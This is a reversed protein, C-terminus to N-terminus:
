HVLGVATERPEIQRGDSKSIPGVGMIEVAIEDIEVGSCEGVNLFEEAGVVRGIVGYQEHKAIEIGGFCKFKRFAVEFVNGHLRLRRTSVDGFRRLGFLATAFNGFIEAGKRSEGDTVGSGWASRGIPVSSRNEIACQM